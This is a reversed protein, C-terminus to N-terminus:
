ETDSNKVHYTIAFVTYTYRKAKQHKEELIHANHHLSSVAMLM